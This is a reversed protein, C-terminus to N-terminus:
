HFGKQLEATRWWCKPETESSSNSTTIITLWWKWQSKCEYNMWEYTLEYHMWEYLVYM